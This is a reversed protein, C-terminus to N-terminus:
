ARAEDDERIKASSEAVLRGDLYLPVNVTDPGSRRGAAMLRGARGTGQAEPTTSRRGSLIRATREAPIVQSRRPLSVIEPGMEGVLALGGPASMTGSAFAGGIFGGVEGAIGAAGELAKRVPGPLVSKLESALGKAIQSAISKGANFFASAAGAITGVIKRVLGKFWSFVAVAGHALGRILGPLAKAGAIALKVPLVLLIQLIQLNLNWFFAPVEPATSIVGKVLSSIARAGLAALKPALSAVLKVVRLVMAGIFFPVRIPLLATFAIFKIAARLMLPPLKALLAATQGPLAALRDTINGLANVVWQSAAGVGTKMANFAAGAASKLMGFHTIVFGIPTILFILQKGVAKWIVDVANHFWQVKDYLTKFVIVEAALIAVFALAPGAGAFAGAMGAGAAESGAQAAFLTKIALAAKALSGAMLLLPGALAALIALEGAMRKIPEPAKSFWKIGDRVAGVLQLFPPIVIPLVESGIEILVAQLSAWARQMQFGFSKEQEHLVKATAGVTDTFAKQDESAAKASKGTLALVGGMGRINPFLEAIAEKTGNTHSIIAELAGQFGRKNVLQQGTTNMEGLLEQLPKSPKILAVFTNKLRTVSEASSLGQKTMTSISAGVENLSVGLQSAFPLVDGITTSLEDFTLVGRNVTEFLTDSVAGARSAPLHYANLAAAVAKTSVETTTLGASAALASKHLIRISENANFGSSVLDYLGEALTNPAQATPGALGLVSKKLRLFQREPLRAISNVNRMNRDFDLAFKGSVAAVGLIPVTLYKTMSTGISRMASIQSTLSRHVGKTAKEAKKGSATFENGISRTSANIGEAETAIQKGGSLRARM